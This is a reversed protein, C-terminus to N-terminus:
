RHAQGAVCDRDSYSCLRTKLKFVSVGRLTTKKKLFKKAVTARKREWAFNIVIMGIVIFFFRM